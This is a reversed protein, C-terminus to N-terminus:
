GNPFWLKRRAILAAHACDRADPWRGDKAALADASEFCKNCVWWGDDRYRILSAFKRGCSRCSLKSSM